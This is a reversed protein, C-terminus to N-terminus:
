KRMINSKRIKCNDIQKQYYDLLEEKSWDKDKPINMFRIKNEFHNQREEVLELACTTMTELQSELKSIKDTLYEIYKEALETM